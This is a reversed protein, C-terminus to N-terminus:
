YKVFKEFRDGIRVFYLGTPLHSVDIRVRESGSGNYNVTSPVNMVIEGLTTFVKIDSSEDVRRNVTPNITTQIYIFDNSPNPYILLKEQSYDEVSTLSTCFDVIKGTVFDQGSIEFIISGDMRKMVLATENTAEEEFYDTPIFTYCGDPLCAM